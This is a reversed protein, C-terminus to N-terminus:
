VRETGTLDRTITVDTYRLERLSCAVYEAQGYGVELVLWRTVAARAIQEHLGVGVLAGRPEWERIEPQLADWEEPAVYPPNSIVLDWGEIAVEFGGERIEVPLQL